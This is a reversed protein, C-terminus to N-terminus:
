NVSAQRRRLTSFVALGMGLLAISSPEPVVFNSLTTVAAGNFGDFTEARFGFIDGAALLVAQHGSQHLLPTLDGVSVLSTFVGNLLYGFADFEPFADNTTYSWDFLVWNPSPNTITFDTAGALTADGGTLVISLPAGSTNVTGSATDTTTWQSVDYYGTFNELAYASSIAAPLLNLAFFTTIFQKRM